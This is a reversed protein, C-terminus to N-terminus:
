EKFILSKDMSLVLIFYYFYLVFLLSVHRPTAATYGSSKVRSSFTLPQDRVGTKIGLFISNLFLSRRANILSLCSFFLFDTPCFQGKQSTNKQQQQKATTKPVLEARLPSNSCLPSSFFIIFLVTVFSTVKAQFNISITRLFSIKIVMTVMTVMSQFSPLVTQQWRQEGQRPRRRTKTAM